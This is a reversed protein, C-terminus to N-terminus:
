KWGRHPAWSAFTDGACVVLHRPRSAIIAKALERVKDGAKDAVISVDFGQLLDFKGPQIEDGDELALNCFTLANPRFFNSHKGDLFIRIPLDVGQRYIASFFELGTM